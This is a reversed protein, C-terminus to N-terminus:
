EFNYQFFNMIAIVTEQALKQDILLNNLIKFNEIVALRLIKICDPSIASSFENQKRSVIGGRSFDFFNNEPRIKEGTEIYNYLEPTFGSLSAFKLLLFSFFLEHNKIALDDLAELYDKLLFFLGEELEDQRIHDLYIKMAKGAIEIKELDNKINLFSNKAVAAGLYDRKHGKVIMIDCISIPEIQGALKSKIDKTGRAILDMRGFEKSFVDILSDREKYAANRLIIAEANKTEEM